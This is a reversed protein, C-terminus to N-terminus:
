AMAVWMALFGALAPMLLRGFVGECCRRTEVNACTDATVKLVNVQDVGSWRNSEGYAPATVVGRSLEIIKNTMSRVVLLIRNMSSLRTGRRSATGATLVTDKELELHVSLGASQRAALEDGGEVRKERRKGTNPAMLM